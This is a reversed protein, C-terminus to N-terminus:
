KTKKKNKKTGKHTNLLNKKTIRIDRQRVKTIMLNDWVTM